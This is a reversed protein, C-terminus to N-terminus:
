REGSEEFAEHSASIRPPCGALAAMNERPGRKNEVGAYARYARGPSLKLASSKKGSINGDSCKKEHCCSVM